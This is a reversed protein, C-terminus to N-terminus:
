FFIVPVLVRVLFSVLIVGILAAFVKVVRKVLLGKKEGLRFYYEFGIALGVSLCGGIFFMGQTITGIMLEFDVRKGTDDITTAIWKLVDRVMEFTNLMAFILLACSLFWAIAYFVFNKTSSEQEEM